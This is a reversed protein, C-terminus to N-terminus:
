ENPTQLYRSIFLNGNNGELPGTEGKQIMSIVQDQIKEDEGGAESILFSDDPLVTKVINVEVEQVVDDIDKTTNSEETNEDSELSNAETVVHTNVPLLAKIFNRAAEEIEASENENRSHPTLEETIIITVDNGSSKNHDMKEIQEAIIKKEEQVIEPEEFTLTAQIQPKNIIENSPESTFKKFFSTLPAISDQSMTPFAPGNMPENGIMENLFIPDFFQISPYEQFDTVIPSNFGQFINHHECNEDHMDYFDSNKGVIGRHPNLQTPNFYDLHMSPENQIHMSPGSHLGYSPLKRSVINSPQPVFDEDFNFISDDTDDFLSDPFTESRMVDDLMNESSSIMQKNKKFSDKNQNSSKYGPMYFLRPAYIKFVNVTPQDLPHEEDFFQPYGGFHPHAIIVRTSALIAFVTVSLM